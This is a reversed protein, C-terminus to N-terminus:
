QQPKGKKFEEWAQEYLDPTLYITAATKALARAARLTAVHASQTRAAKEFLTTHNPGKTDIKFVPQISPLAYSVNGFDSSASSIASTQEDPLFEVGEEEM